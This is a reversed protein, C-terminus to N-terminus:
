SPVRLLAEASTGSAQALLRAVEGLCWFGQCRGFGARTRRRLGDLSRAPIPANAAALIEARTVRECHCVVRGADPDRAIAAPDRHPRLGREGIWPMRVSSVRERAPARLGGDELLERVYEAIGMAASLGTSRIGGATVYRREPHSEIRYDRVETASRVGAYVATVEEDLLRPVLRRGRDLLFSIGEATSSTDTPDDVEVATPGLLVNGFVTPAVLVGKTTATPVPLIVHSILARAAKDFVILEGKRPRITFTEYGFMRDVRDAFLGAANVVFAARLRERPTILVHHGHAREVALVPADLLLEVGNAVAETAFALPTTFPCVIGEDPIELAALAGAGLNPEVTALEGPDLRRTRVGNAQAREVIEDLIKVEHDTWAVLLAGTREAPIGAQEVYRDMLPFSRRLLAAELSGPVADFGTHWIATNAKSTGVGIDQAAEILAISLDRHALERAIACGVVGAGIVAVDFSRE